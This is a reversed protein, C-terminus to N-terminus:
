ILSTNMNNISLLSYQMSFLILLLRLSPLIIFILITIVEEGRIHNFLCIHDCLCKHKILM